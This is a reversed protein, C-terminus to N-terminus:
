KKEEYFYPNNPDIVPTPKEAAISEILNRELLKLGYLHEEPLDNGINQIIKQVLGLTKNKHNLPKKAPAIGEEPSFFNYIKQCDKKIWGPASTTPDDKIECATSYVSSFSTIIFILLKYSYNKYINESKM